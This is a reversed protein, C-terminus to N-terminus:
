RHREWGGPPELARRQVELRLEDPSTVTVLEGRFAVAVTRREESVVFVLTDWEDTLGLAARHRTGLSKDLDERDSLPLVAGALWIRGKRVVVAGDHLPSTPQFLAVLLEESPEADVVTAAAALAELSADRELVVLAGHGQEALRFCARAIVPVAGEPARGGATRLLPAAVRALGRRLEDQFLVLVVLVLYPSLAELIWRVTTLQVMGAVIYLLGLAGIGAMVAIGRTGRILRLGRFVLAAVLLVDIADRLHLLEFWRSM